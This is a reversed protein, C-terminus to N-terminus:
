GENDTVINKHIISLWHLLKEVEKSSLGRSAIKDVEEGIGSLRHYAKEGAETLSVVQARRDDRAQNRVLLGKEQLKDIIRTITASDLNLIKGLESQVLHDKEGLAMLMMWQSPSIGASALHKELALRMSRAIINVQTGLSESLLLM